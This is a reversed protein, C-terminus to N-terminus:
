DSPTKVLGSRNVPRVPQNKKSTFRYHDRNLVAAVSTVEEPFLGLNLETNCQEVMCAFGRARQHTGGAQLHCQWRWWRKNTALSVSAEAILKEGLKLDAGQFLAPVQAGASTLVLSLIFFISQRMPPLNDLAGSTRLMFNRCGFADFLPGPRRGAWSKLDGFDSSGASRSVWPNSPCRSPKLVALDRAIGNFMSSGSVSNSPAYMYSFTVETQNSVAYTGGLTYHTTIVGPALINFTVDRSQVPNGGVNYGCADDAEALSGV